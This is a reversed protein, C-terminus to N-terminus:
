VLGPIFKYPVARRFRVWTDGFEEKLYRDEIAGRGYFSASWFLMLGVWVWILGRAYTNSMIQCELIYSGPSFHTVASGLLMLINGTYGPHRVYSYPGSTVLQHNPRITMTYTFLRGLTKYCWVRLMASTYMLFIGAIFTPSLTALQHLSPSPALCVKFPLANSPTNQFYLSLMIAWETMLCGCSMIRAPMAMRVAVPLREFLQSKNQIRDEKNVINPPRFAIWNALAALPLLFAKAPLPM